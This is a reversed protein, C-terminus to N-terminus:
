QVKLSLVLSTFHRKNQRQKKKMPHLAEKLRDKPEDYLKYFKSINELKISIDSMPVERVKQQVFKM